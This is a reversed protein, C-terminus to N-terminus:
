SCHLAASVQVLDGGEYVRYEGKEGHVYVEFYDVLPDAFELRYSKVEDSSNMLKFRFWYYDDTFGYSPVDEGNERFQDNYRGSRIDDFDIKKSTDTLIKLHPSLDYRGSNKSLGAADFVSPEASYGAIAATLFSVLAFVRSLVRPRIM